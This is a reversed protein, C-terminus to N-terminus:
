PEASYSAQLDIPEVDETSTLGRCDLTGEVGTADVKTLTVTCEDAVPAFQPPVGATGVRGTTLGIQPAGFSNGASAHVGAGSPAQIRLSDGGSEDGSPGSWNLIVNSGPILIGNTLTLDFSATAGGTMTVHATGHTLTVPPGDLEGAPAVSPAAPSAVSAASPAATSPSATATAAAVGTGGTTGPVSAAACGGLVVTLLAGIVLNSRWNRVTTREKTNM